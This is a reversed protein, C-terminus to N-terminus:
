KPRYGRGAKEIQSKQELRRLVPYLQQPSIDLEGAHDTVRHDPNSRISALLQQEREGPRARSSRRARRSPAGSSSSSRVRRRSGGELEALAGVLRERAEDLEAIRQRLIERAKELHDSM